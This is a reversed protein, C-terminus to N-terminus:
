CCGPEEEEGGGESGVVSEARLVRASARRARALRMRRPVAPM